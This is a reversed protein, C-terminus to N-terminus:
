AGYSRWLGRSGPMNWFAKGEAKLLRLCDIVFDLDDDFARALNRETTPGVVGLLSHFEDLEKRTPRVRQRLGPM